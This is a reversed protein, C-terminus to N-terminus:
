FATSVMRREAGAEDGRGEANESGPWTWADARELAGTPMGQVELLKYPLVILGKKVTEKHILKIITEGMLQACIDPDVELKVVPFPAVMGSGKNSLTVVLLDEPVRIGLQLIAMATVPFLNDDCILLSDPKDRGAWIARFEEWGAGPACPNLSHRLWRRNIDAGALALASCFSEVALLHRPPRYYELLAPRRRGHHLLYGVGARVLEASDVEVRYDCEEMQGVLPVHFRRLPELWEPLIQPPTFAVIASLQRRELAELFATCTVERPSDDAPPCHGAYLRAPVNKKRLFCAVRQPTRRYFYPTRLDSVDREALVGVHRNRTPNSVFIGRGVRREILGEQALASLGERITHYNVKFRDALDRATPLRQGPQAHGFIERRLIAAIQTSLSEPNKLMDKDVNM